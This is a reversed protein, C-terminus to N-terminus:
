SKIEKPKPATAGAKARLHDIICVIDNAQVSVMKTRNNALSSCAKYIVDVTEEITNEM